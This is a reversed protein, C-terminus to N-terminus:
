TALAECESSSVTVPGRRKPNPNQQASPTPNSSLDDGPTSTVFSSETVKVTQLLMQCTKSTIAFKLAGNVKRLILM